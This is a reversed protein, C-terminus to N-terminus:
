TSKNYRIERTTELGYPPYFCFSFLKRFPCLKPTEATQCTDIGDTYYFFFKLLYPKHMEIVVMNAADAVMMVVMLVMMVVMIVVMLMMVM